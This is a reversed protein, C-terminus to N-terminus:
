QLRLEWLLELKKPALVYRWLHFRQKKIVIGLAESLADTSIGQFFLERQHIFSAIEHLAATTPINTYFSTADSTFLKANLPLVLPQVLTKFALSSQLYSPQSTAIGQLKRDVWTGLAHLLSGSCSVIPRTEWPTKHIKLTAYFVPFPDVVKRQSNRIFNKEETPIDHRYKLLWSEIDGALRCIHSTAEEKTYQKYYLGEHLHDTFVRHIYVVREIVAPGM